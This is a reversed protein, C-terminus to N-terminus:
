EIVTRAVLTELVFEGDPPYKITITVKKLNESETEEVDTEWEYGPHSEFPGSDSALSDFGDSMTEELKGRALMAAMTQDKHKQALDLSLLHTGLLTVLSTAIIALAVMVELLTFGKDSRHTTM